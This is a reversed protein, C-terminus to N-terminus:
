YLKEKKLGVKLVFAGFMSIGAAALGAVLTFFGPMWGVQRYIQVGVDNSWFPETWIPTLGEDSASVEFYGTPMGNAPQLAEDLAMHYHARGCVCVGGGTCTPTENNNPCYEVDDCDSLKECTIFKAGTSKIKGRGLFDNLIGRLASSLQRPVIGVADTQKKGYDRGDYAGYIGDGVQVFPQGYYGNYVGSFYNPQRGNSDFAVGSGLGLGTRARENAMEVSAYTRILSCGANQYLCNALQKLTSDSESLEPILNAAYASATDSDYNVAGDYAAAVAARALITAAGAISDIKISNVTASDMHSHYPVKTTFAYDYGTLVAGGIAGESVSLLSTLPTPPYPYGNGNNNTSAKAVSVASTSSSLMVNSLFKGFKDNNNDAHVYLLGSAVEHGVQDVSIMGNITGLGTFALSPRVPNLCAYDSKDGMRYVSRVPSGNCSFSTVDRLFSRSGLFGFSEGQFLAFVIQSTLGDLTDDDVNDGILKAAMLLTLINSAATNAGPVVDHFLSTSDMSGAVMVVSRGEGGNSSSASSSPASSLSPSGASAWVSTGGLPLCKPVWDGTAADKWALCQKSNIGDMGMYYNFDAVVSSTSHSSSTTSTSSSKALQSELRLADSVDSDLVYAMPLGFLDYHFLGEGKSNWAYAYNNMGNCSSLQESPTGYGQPAQADPSRHTNSADDADKTDDEHNTANLVLIGQLLGNNKRAALLTNLSKATLMYDEMVAVYPEDRGSLGNSSGGFYVLEGVQNSREQTGCGVRGDRYFLTTCPAHQLKTVSAAFPQNLLSDLEDSGSGGRVVFPLLCVTSLVLLFSFEKMM